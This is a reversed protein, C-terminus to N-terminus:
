GLVLVIWLNKYRFVLKTPFPLSTLFQSSTQISFVGKTHSGTVFFFRSHHDDAMGTMSASEFCILRLYNILETREHWPHIASARPKSVHRAALHDYLKVLMPVENYSHNLNKILRMSNGASCHALLVSTRHSINFLYLAVRIPM